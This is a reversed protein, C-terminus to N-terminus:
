QYVSGDGFYSNLGMRPAKLTLMKTQLLSNRVGGDLRRESSWDFAKRSGVASYRTRAEPRKSV